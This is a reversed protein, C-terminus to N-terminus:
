SVVLTVYVGSAFRIVKEEWDYVRVNRLFVLGLLLGSVAGALHGAYSTRYAGYNSHREYVAIGFDTVNFIILSLFRFWPNRMENWNLILNSCHAAILAYCGCSAGALYSHPDVISNGLSGGLVGGFYIIFVAHFKHATELPIGVALQILLNFTLHWYGAHIFMYTFYRWVEYRRTPNFILKSNFPVPGTFTISEDSRFNYYVFAFLEFISIFIIFFPPYKYTLRRIRTNPEDIVDINFNSRM